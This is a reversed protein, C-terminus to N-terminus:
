APVQPLPEEPPLPPAEEAPAPPTVGPVPQTFKDLLDPDVPPVNPTDGAHLARLDAIVERAAVQADHPIGVRLGRLDALLEDLATWPQGVFDNSTLFGHGAAAWVGVSNAVTEHPKAHGYDLLYKRVTDPVLHIRQGLITVQLNALKRTFDIEALIESRLKQTRQELGTFLTDVQGLVEGKLQQGFVGMRDLVQGIQGEFSKRTRELFQLVGDIQDNVFKTVQGIGDLINQTLQAIAPISQAFEWVWMFAAILLIRTIAKILDGQFYAVIGKLWQEVFDVLEVLVHFGALVIQKILGSVPEILYSRLVWTVGLLAAAVLWGLKINIAHLGATIGYFVAAYAIVTALQDAWGPLDYLSAAGPGITAGVVPPPPLASLSPAVVVPQPAEVTLAAAAFPTQDVGGINVHGRAQYAGPDTGSTVTWTTEYHGPSTEQLVLSPPAGM